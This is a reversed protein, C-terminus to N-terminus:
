AVGGKMCLTIMYGLFLFPVFPLRSKRGAKKMCYLALAVLSALFFAACLCFVTFEAGTCVGILVALMGDGLGIGKQTGWHLLCVMLGIGAGGAMSKVSLQGSIALGAIGIMYGTGVAWINVKQCKIDQISLGALLIGLFNQIWIM